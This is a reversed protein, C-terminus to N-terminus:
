KEYNLGLLLAKKNQITKNAGHAINSLYIIAKGKKPFVKEPINSNNSSERKLYLYTEGDDCTNLYVIISFDVNYDVHVSQYGGYGYEIIHVRNYKFKCGCKKEIKEKFSNLTEYVDKENLHLINRTKVGNHTRIRNKHKPILYSKQKYLELKKDFFDIFQDDVSFEYFAPLDM